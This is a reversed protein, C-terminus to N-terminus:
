SRPELDNAPFGPWMTQKGVPVIDFRRVIWSMRWGAAHMHAFFYGIQVLWSTDIAPMADDSM